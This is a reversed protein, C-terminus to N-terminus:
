KPPFGKVQVFDVFDEDNTVIILNNQKAYNWIETDKLPISIGLHDVHLSDEFYHKLVTCMRWSLNADLLLKM